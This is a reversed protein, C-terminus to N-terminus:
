ILGMATMMQKNVRHVDFKEEALKRSNNGMQTVLEPHAIFREMAEALSQPDRPSILFGNYGEIVTERCGPVDTTIIPRGMAMAELVTRPMGERYSPLVYVTSQAIVPRIDSVEGLYEIFSSNNWTTVEKSPIAAPNSDTPGVLLFVAEPHNKKILQAAEIYERIGKDKLLRAILLFVPHTAKIPTLFFHDLDVGSGNVVVAQALNVLGLQVFLNRDDSNQFFVLRNKSLSIRYLLRILRNLVRNELSPEPNDVFSFGLGSILSFRNPVAALRAALSGFVVPKITYGLTIDPQLRQLLRTLRIVAHFDSIPNLGTRNLTIPEYRAGLNQVQKTVAPDCGPACAVVEHGAQVMAALLAGRFNILSKDYSAILVIKMDM